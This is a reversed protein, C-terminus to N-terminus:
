PWPSYDGVDGSHSGGPTRRACEHNSQSETLAEVRSSCGTPSPVMTSSGSSAGRWGLSHDRYSYLMSGNPLAYSKSLGAYNDIIDPFGHALAAQVFERPGAGARPIDVKLASGVRPLDQVPSLRGAGGLGRLGMILEGGASVVDDLPLVTLLALAMEGASAEQPEKTCPGGALVSQLCYAYDKFAQSDPTLNEGGYITGINM